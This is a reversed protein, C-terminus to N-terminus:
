LASWRHLKEVVAGCDELGDADGVGEDGLHDEVADVEADGEDAEIEDFM